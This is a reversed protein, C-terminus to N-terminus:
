LTGRKKKILKEIFAFLCVKSCFNFEKDDDSNWGKGYSDFDDPETVKMQNRINGETYDRFFKGRGIRIDRFLSIVGKEYMNKIEKGCFDCFRIYKKVM